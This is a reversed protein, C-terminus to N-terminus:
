PGERVAVVTAAAAALEDALGAPDAFFPSHGTSLRVSKIGAAMQEQQTEPLIQDRECIVYSAAPIEAAGLTLRDSFTQSSQPVLRSALREARDPPIDDYFLRMAEAPVPLYAAANDPAGSFSRLSEGVPLRFAAVYVVHVVNGATAAAQTAPIGGYSHAVLLVPGDITGLIETIAAADDAVGAATSRRSDVSPLDHAQSQLGRATLETQLDTWCWAGHWAGHILVILPQGDSASPSHAPSTGRTM